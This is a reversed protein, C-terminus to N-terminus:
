ALSYPPAPATAPLVITFATGHDGTDTLAITGRHVTVISRAIALGLRAGGGSVREQRSRAKDARYFRDFVHPRAAEPIGSGNDRVVIRYDDRERALTVEVRGDKDGLHRVANDLLILLLQRLRGEDGHCAAERCGSWDVTAGKRAGGRLNEVQFTLRPNPSLAAQRRLGDAAEVNADAARLEQHQEIAM